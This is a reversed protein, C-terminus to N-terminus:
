AARHARASVALRLCGLGCLATAAHGSPLSAWAASWNFPSFLMPDISGGVGPRARGFIHKVINVFLGPVAIAAFLFGVRVMIAALVRQSIRTLGAPLAAM